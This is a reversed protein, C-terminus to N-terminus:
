YKVDGLHSLYLTLEQNGIWKMNNIYYKFILLLVSTSMNIIRLKRKQVYIM